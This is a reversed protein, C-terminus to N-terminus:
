VRTTVVPLNEMLSLLPAEFTANKRAPMPM